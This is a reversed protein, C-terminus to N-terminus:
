NISMRYSCAVFTCINLIEKFSSIKYHYFVIFIIYKNLARFDEETKAGSHDDPGQLPHHCLHHPVLLRLRHLLIDVDGPRDLRPLFM